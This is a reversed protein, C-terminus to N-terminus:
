SEANEQFLVRSVDSRFLAMGEKNLHVGRPTYLSADHTIEPHRCRQGGLDGVLKAISRNLRKRKLEISKVNQAGRWSQRPLMDSWVIKCKPVRLSLYCMELNIDEFLEKARINCLDNSGLHIFVTKPAEFKSLM